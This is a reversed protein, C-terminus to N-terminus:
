PKPQHIMDAIWRYRFDQGELVALAGACGYVLGGLLVGITLLSFGLAFPLLCFGVVLYLLPITVAWLAASVGGLLLLLLLVGVQFILAQLAHWDVYKSKKSYLLWLILAVIPGGVGTFLNLLVSGHAIAALRQEETSSPPGVPRENESM